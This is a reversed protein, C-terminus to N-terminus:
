TGLHPQPSWAEPGNSSKGPRTGKGAEAEGCGGERSPCPRPSSGPWASPCQPHARSPPPLFPSDAGAQVRDDKATLSQESYAGGTGWLLHCGRIEQSLLREWWRHDAEGAAAATSSPQLQEPRLARVAALGLSWRSGQGPPEDQGWGEAEKYFHLTAAGFHLHFSPQPSPRLPGKWTAGRSSRGWRGRGVAGGRDPGVGAGRPGQPPGPRWGAMGLGPVGPAQARRGESGTGPEGCTPAEAGERRADLLHLAGALRQGGVAERLQARQLHQRLQEVHAGDAQRCGVQPGAQAGVGAGEAAARGHLLGHAM